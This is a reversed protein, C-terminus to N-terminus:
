KLRVFYGHAQMTFLKDDNQWGYAVLVSPAGAHATRSPRGDVHHFALRGKLFLMSTAHPWVWEHWAETETRAFLLAIGNGHLALRKLWRFTDPGYPPNLWVRGWWEQALGDDAANFHTAATRWPPNTPACPDLDFPGLKDVIWPPTLWEDKGGIAREHSAMGTKRHRLSVAAGLLNTETM